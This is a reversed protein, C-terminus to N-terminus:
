KSSDVPKLLLTSQTEAPTKQATDIKDTWKWYQTYYFVTFRTSDTPLLHFITSSQRAFNSYKICFHLYAHM